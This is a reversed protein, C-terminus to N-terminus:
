GGGPICTSCYGMGSPLSRGKRKHVAGGQAIFNGKCKVCVMARGTIVLPAIGSRAHFPHVEREKTSKTTPM